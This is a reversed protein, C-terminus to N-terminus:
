CNSYYELPFETSPARHLHFMIRDLPSVPHAALFDTIIVWSRLGPGLVVAHLHSEPTCRFTSTGYKHHAVEMGLYCAIDDDGAALCTAVKRTDGRPEGSVSSSWMGGWRNNMIM